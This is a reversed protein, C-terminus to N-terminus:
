SGVWVSDRNSIGTGRRPGFRAPAGAAAVVGHIHSLRTRAHANGCACLYMFFPLPLLFGFAIEAQLM